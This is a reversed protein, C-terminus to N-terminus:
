LDAGKFVHFSCKLDGQIRCHIAIDADSNFNSGTITFDRRADRLVCVPAINQVNPYLDPNEGLNLRKAVLGSSVFMSDNNLQVLMKTDKWFSSSPSALLREVVGDLSLTDKTKPQFIDFNLYV